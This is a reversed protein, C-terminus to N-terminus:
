PKKEKIRKEADPNCTLCTLYHGDLWGYVHPTHTKCEGCWLYGVNDGDYVRQVPSPSTLTATTM